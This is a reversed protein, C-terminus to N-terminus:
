KASKKNEKSASLADWQKFIENMQEPNMASKLRPMVFSDMSLRSLGSLIRVHQANMEAPSLILFVFYPAFGSELDAIGKRAIGMALVPDTLGPIRTHPFALGENLFTSGQEERKAVAAIVADRPIGPLAPMALDVLANVADKKNLPADWFCIRPEPILEAFQLGKGPLINAILTENESKEIVAEDKQHPQRTDLVTLTIGNSERILREVVSTQGILRGLMSIKRGPSGVVIHGVRYEKAFQLITKVIDEGKYTFVMAGLQKALTLTTSLIRQTKADIAAPSEAPTQVYFAYWSRNLRGALRSTYRLLMDRNPGHSSLCVMIQDPSSPTLSDAAQNDRRRSDIQSALERLTLERLEELNSQQFFQEMAADIRGPPYVKGEKLRKRLDEATLDVNILQDAELLVKDPIREKVKVSLDKEVTDYLSELHQVNLTSIVHIGAQLLDEVDQYRKANKSGPINTHALEDVLVVAPKRNFVAEVNMEEVEIGHYLIKTRPIIELGELLAATDQRQHTEVLGVVIDVGEKKLRHAELLMQYTKGVGACYGLYIKLKGRESLRIMRLFSDARNENIAM